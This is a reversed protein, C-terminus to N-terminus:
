DPLHYREEQIDATLPNFAIEIWAEGKRFEVRLPNCLGTPAFVWPPCEPESGPELWLSSGWFRIRCGTGPTFPYEAISEEPTPTADPDSDASANPSATPM